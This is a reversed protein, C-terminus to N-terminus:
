IQIKTVGIIRGTKPSQAFVIVRTEGPRVGPRLAVQVTKSFPQGSPITALKLFSYAVAVHTLTRGANEGRSVQSQAADAALVLYVDTASLGADPIEIHAQAHVGALGATLTIPVKVEHLSGQIASEVAQRNGGVVQSVGDVVLQPTYIDPLHLHSAYNEQRRSFLDSSYPDKWGLRNWYDVHESLVILDAGNVPQDHDLARLLTDAPPCSSCGESTFLELLVPTRVAPQQNQSGPLSSTFLLAAAVMVWLTKM